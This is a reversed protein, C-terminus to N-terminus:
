SYQPVPVPAFSTRFDTRKRVSWRHGTEVAPESPKSLLQRAAQIPADEGHQKILENAARYIDLDSM